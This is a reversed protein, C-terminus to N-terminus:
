LLLLGLGLAWLYFSFWELRQKDVVKLILKLGLYGSIFAAIFGILLPSTEMNALEVDKLQLVTAGLIAPVALLFSFLAANKGMIGLMLAVAITSGSRSIGPAIAMSQALGILLVKAYSFQSVLNKDLKLSELSGGEDNPNRLFKQSYLVVGTFMLCYAVANTNSFLAEFHDKFGLGIVATPITAVVVFLGLQLGPLIEKSKLSKFTDQVIQILVNKYILLVALLTGVHVIVDFLIDHKTIGFMKQGIVLHGSSSVPLFETLGQVIGLVAASIWDLAM